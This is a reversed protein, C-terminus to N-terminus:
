VPTHNLLMAPFRAHLTLPFVLISQVQTVNTLRDALMRLGFFHHPEVLSMEEVDATNSWCRAFREQLDEFLFVQRAIGVVAVAGPNLGRYQVLDTFRKPLRGNTEWPLRSIHHQYLIHEDSM